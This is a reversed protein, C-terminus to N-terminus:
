IEKEITYEKRHRGHTFAIIEGLLGVSAAQVGIVMSFISLFLIPRDGIPHHFIIKQTFIFSALILGIALFVAGAGSFFRLPKRTFHTNFYITLIDVIRAAHEPLYSFDTKGIRQQYHDCKVERIKFGNNLALVPLYRYMNGYLNIEELVERRFVKVSCNLDHLKAKVVKSVLANFILSRFQRFYTDIRNDRWATVIDTKDDLSDLLRPFSDNTIQQYSGCTIIIEGRSEKLGAKLCVAQPVQINLEFAKLNNICGQLKELENRLFGGTGNAVIIIEFPEQRKLFLTHLNQIYTAFNKQECELIAIISYKM